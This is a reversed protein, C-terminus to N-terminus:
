SRNRRLQTTRRRADERSQGACDSSVAYLPLSLIAAMAVVEWHWNGGLLMLAAVTAVLSLAGALGRLSGARMEEVEPELCFPYPM